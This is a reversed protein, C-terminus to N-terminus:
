RLAPRFSPHLPVATTSNFYDFPRIRKHCGGKASSPLKTKITTQRNRVNNHEIWLFCILAVMSVFGTIVAYMELVNLLCHVSSSSSLCLLLFNSVNVDWSSSSPILPTGLGEQRSSNASLVYIFIDYGILSSSTQQSGRSSITSCAASSETIWNCM